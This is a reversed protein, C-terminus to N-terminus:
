KEFLVEWNSSLIAKKDEESVKYMIQIKVLEISVGCYPYNSGFLLREPGVKWVVESFTSSVPGMSTEIYINPYKRCSRWINVYDASGGAHGMIFKFEPFFSVIKNFTKRKGNPGYRNEEVLPWDMHIYIPSNVGLIDQVLKFYPSLKIKNIEFGQEPHIKVGLINLNQKQEELLSRNEDINKSFDIAGFIYAKEKYKSYYPKLKKLYNEIDHFDGEFLSPMLCFKDINFKNLNKDFDEMNNTVHRHFDFIKYNPIDLTLKQKM